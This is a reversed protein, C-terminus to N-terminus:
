FVQWNVCLELVVPLFPCGNDSPDLPIDLYAVAREDRCLFGRKRTSLPTVHPSQAMTHLGELAVQFLRKWLELQSDFVCLLVGHNSHNHQMCDALAECLTSELYGYFVTGAKRVTM